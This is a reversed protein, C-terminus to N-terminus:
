SVLNYITAATQSFMQDQAKSSYGGVMKKFANYLTHYGISFKDVPFNSELMCREPGFCDIMHHYYRAQAEVLEDSSAPYDRESWGFGNDPMALGGLKAVVNPCNEALTEMDRQWESFIPERQGAFPGVGLPTGFHDLVMVTGPCELALDIFARNQYHYHWTDFTLGLDGLM